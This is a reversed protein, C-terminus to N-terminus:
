FDVTACACQRDTRRSVRDDAEDASLTKAPTNLTVCPTVRSGEQLSNWTNEEGFGDTSTNGLSRVPEGEPLLPDENRRRSGQSDGRHRGARHSELREQSESDFVNQKKNDTRLYASRMKHGAPNRQVEDHLGRATGTTGKRRQKAVPVDATRQSFQIM